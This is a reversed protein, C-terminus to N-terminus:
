LINNYNYSPSHFAFGFRFRSWQVDLRVLRPPLNLQLGNKLKTFFCKGALLMLYAYFWNFQILLKPWNPSCVELGWFIETPHVLLVFTINPSATLVRFLGHVVKCISVFGLLFDPHHFAKRYRSMSRLLADLYQSSLLFYRHM